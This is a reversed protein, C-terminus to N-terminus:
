KNTYMVSNRSRYGTEGLAKLPEVLDFEGAKGQFLFNVNLYQRNAPEIEAM